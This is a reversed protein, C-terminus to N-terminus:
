SARRAADVVAGFLASREDEECHWLVGLAFRREPLEIAEIIRDPVSFGSAVLGEGLEEVGQHHHSKVALNQAASARAALSGPELRVDHEGFAGPRPRHRDAGLVDPLHQVLTGGRAVNFVEMGRCIGLLPLDREIAERALALEFRDREPRPADTEPHRRAGYTAPDLDAGGTLILGDIAGLLAAPADGEETEEPVLLPIGGARQVSRSYAAPLLHAPAEWVSWRAAELSMSLGILPRSSL